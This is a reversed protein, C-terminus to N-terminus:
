GPFGFLKKQKITKVVYKPVMKEWRNDNHQLLNLVEDSTIKLWEENVGSLSVILDNQKLYRYIHMVDDPLQLDNINMIKGTKRDLAPYIYFKTRAPFMKGVAELLGGPLNAYYSKDLVKVFTPIGMVIRLNKHKFRGFYDVLKYFEKFNSILVNQGMGNLLDVRDLFDREKLEGEELLNNLTIECIQLTNDPKFLANKKFHAYSTKLIDFGVYTIPRFRGRLVLANKKYLMDDPEQINGYRDFFIASTMGNKVLQVGLLRNDVYALDPGSMRVMTIEVRDSTLNDMLSQLFQTPNNYYYFCAYILNVGLVGLTYQQLLGDNENLRVHVVVENPERQKTLEFRVGMWGHGHNDKRFNLTEVTNAFVFYRKEPSRESELVEILQNYEAALMQQLRKLCVYRGSDGESYLYDSFVKDYASITKAITGSAGGAQFFARAVEQGGGIEAITGYFKPDLNVALAKRKTSLIEREM